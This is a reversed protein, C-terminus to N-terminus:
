RRAIGSEFIVDKARLSLSSSRGQHVSAFQCTLVLACPKYQWRTEMLQKDLEVNKMGSRSWCTDPLMEASECGSHHETRSHQPKCDM